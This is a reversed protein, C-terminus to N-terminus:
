DPDDDDWFEDEDWSKDERKSAPVPKPQDIPKAQYVIQTSSTGHRPKPEPKVIVQWITTKSHKDESRKLCFRTSDDFV